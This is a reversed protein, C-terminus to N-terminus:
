ENVGECTGHDCGEHGGTADLPILNHDAGYEDEVDGDGINKELESEGNDGREQEGDEEHYQAVGGTEDETAVHNAEGQHGIQTLDNEGDEHNNGNGNEEGEADM